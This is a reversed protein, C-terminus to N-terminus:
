TLLPSKLSKQKTRFIPRNCIPSRVTPFRFSRISIVAPFGSLKLWFAIDTRGISWEAISDFQDNTSWKNRKCELSTFAICRNFGSDSGMGNLYQRLYTKTAVPVSLDTSVCFTVDFEGNWTRCLRCSKTHSRSYHAAQLAERRACALIFLSYVHISIVYIFSPAFLQRNSWRRKRGFWWYIM